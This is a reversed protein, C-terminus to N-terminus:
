KFSIKNIQKVSFSVFLLSLILGLSFSLTALLAGRCNYITMGCLICFCSEKIFNTNESWSDVKKILIATLFGGLIIGIWGFAFYWEGIYPASVNTFWSGYHSIVIGGSAEMKGQWISRPLLFMLASFINNGWTIGLNDTYNIMMMLLQYADFDIHNFNMNFSFFSTIESVYRLSSFNLSFGLFFILFYFSKYKYKSFVSAIVVIYTGFIIFRPMNGWLPFFILLTEVLVIWFIFDKRLLNFNKSYKNLFILLSCVPFYRVINLIQSGIKVDAILEGKSTLNHTLLLYVISFTSVLVLFVRTKNNINKLSDNFSNNIEKNRSNPKNKKLWYSVNFVIIFVLIIINTKLYLNDNFDLWVGNGRWLSSRNSYQQLPAIFLFIYNFIHATRFISINQKSSVISLFSLLGILFFSLVVLINLGQFNLGSLFIATFILVLGYCILDFVIISDIKLSKM